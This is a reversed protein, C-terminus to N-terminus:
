LRDGPPGAQDDTADDPERVWASFVPLGHWPSGAAGTPRALDADPNVAFAVVAYPYAFRLEAERHRAPLRAAMGVALATVAAAEFGTRTYRAMASQAAAWPDDGPVLARRAAAFGLAPDTLDLRSSASWAPLVATCTDAPAVVERLRWLPGDGLPLSALDRRDVRAGTALRHGIDHAAALVPGAPVDPAAGVSVVLLGGAAAAAHVIVDGLEPAATIFQRHGSAGPGTPTRLVRDLQGAWPSASGLASAPALEFPLRWSVKTALATALVLVALDADIPFREILGFTHERAWSDLGAQGPLAGTSVAAPLGALWRRFEDTGSFGRATWVAAAAGVLPHLDALVEAAARAAVDIDCGLAETLVERDAGSSATGALALLLWAGLPSAVQHRDGAVAHVRAAYGAVADAVVATQVSM